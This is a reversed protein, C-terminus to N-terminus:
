KLDRNDWPANEYCGAPLKDKYWVAAHMGDPGVSITSKEFPMERPKGYCKNLSQGPVRYRPNHELFDRLEEDRAAQLEGLYSNACASAKSFDFKMREDIPATKDYGYKVLCASLVENYQSPIHKYEASAATTILAVIAGLIIVRM